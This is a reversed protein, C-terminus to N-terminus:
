FVVNPMKGLCIQFSVVSSSNGKLWYLIFGTPEPGYLISLMTSESPPNGFSYLSVAKLLYADFLAYM